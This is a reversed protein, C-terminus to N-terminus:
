CRLPACRARAERLCRVQASRAGGCIVIMEDTLKFPAAEFGANGGPSSSLMFGFDIHVIHGDADILINGNHRDKIQARSSLALSGPLLAAAPPPQTLM